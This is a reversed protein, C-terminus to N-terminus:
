DPSRGVAAGGAYVRLRQAARPRAAAEPIGLGARHGSAGGARQLDQELTEIIDLTRWGSGLMYIADAGKAKLFSSKIHAYIQEGSLEQVKNFPVDIGDM